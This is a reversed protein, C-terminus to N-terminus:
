ALGLVARFVRILEADQPRPPRRLVLPIAPRIRAAGIEDEALTAMDQLFRDEYGTWDDFSWALMPDEAPWDEAYAEATDSVLLAVARFAEGATDCGCTPPTGAMLDALPGAPVRVHNRVWSLARKATAALRRRLPESVHAELRVRQNQDTYVFARYTAGTADIHPPLIEIISM